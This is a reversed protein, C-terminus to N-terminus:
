FPKDGKLTVRHLLRSFGHYDNIPFHQTCRNDWFAVAGKSWRFRYVFEARTQHQFLYDLIPKSEENTMNQFCTTHAKNVYLAKRGTEPHTRIVPHVAQPCDIDSDTKGRDSYRGKYIHESEHTATM